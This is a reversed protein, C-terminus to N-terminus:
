RPQERYEAPTVGVTKKFVRHFYSHSNFGTLNRIGEITLQTGALLHKAREVRLSSLAREFTMGHERKLLRSFYDPAFGAVRSVQALSLPENMHDQMFTRARALSRGHRASIPRQLTAELESVARRYVTLVQALTRADELSRDISKFLEAAGREDLYGSTLLPDMLREFGAGLEARTVEVRYGVRSLVAEIYREFRPSVVTAREGFSRALESRLDRLEQESRVPSSKAQLSRAGVSLAQEAASLAARYRMTLTAENAAPAIGAHFRFGYRRALTAARLALDSLRSGTAARSGRHHVLFAVGQDGVPGSLAQGFKRALEACARQFTDRRIREDIPDPEDEKGVLLGVVVHQPVDHVELRALEMGGHGPWALATREDILHRVTQWARETYRLDHLTQRLSQAEAMHQAPDGRGVALSAFCALLREFSRLRPGDFTLTSLTHGLYQLFASDNVRARTGTIARWRESVEASTPRSTAFPGVVLIGGLKRRDLLPVFLDSFGCHEGRVTRGAGRVREFSAFNYAWRRAAVGSDYEFDAVNTVFHIPFWFDGSVWLSISIHLEAFARAVVPAL